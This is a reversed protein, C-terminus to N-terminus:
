KIEYTSKNENENIERLLTQDLTLFEWRAAGSLLTKYDGDVQYTVNM